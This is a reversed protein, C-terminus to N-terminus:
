RWVQRALHERPEASPSTEREPAIVFTKQLSAACRFVVGPGIESCKELELALAKLFADRQSRHVPAAAQMVANFEADNLSLPM